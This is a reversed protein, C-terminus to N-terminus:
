FLQWKEFPDDFGIFGIDSASGSSTSFIIIFILFVLTPASRFLSRDQACHLAGSVNRGANGFIGGSSADDVEDFISDIRM